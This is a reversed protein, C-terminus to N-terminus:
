GPISGVVEVSFESLQRPLDSFVLMFPLVKGSPIKFNSKKDGYRNGLKKNIIPMDLRQLANDSLANGCYVVRNQVIKGDKTYVVGKVRIFNRLEPYDNRIKGKIVFLRGAKRNDVFDGTIFQELFAIRANGPDAKDSKPAGKLSELFPIEIQLDLVKYATFAGGGLLLILLLILFPARIPKRAKAGSELIPPPLLEEEFEEAEVELGEEDASTASFEEAAEEAIEPLEEAAPEEEDVSFEEL